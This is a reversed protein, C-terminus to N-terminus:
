GTPICPPSTGSSADGGLSNGILSARAIGLQDMLGALIKMEHSDTYDPGTLGIGPLDFRIVRYQAALGAGLAEL